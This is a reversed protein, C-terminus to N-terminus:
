SRNLNYMEETLPVPRTPTRSSVLIACGYRVITEKKHQPLMDATVEPTIYFDWRGEMSQMKFAWKFVKMHSKKELEDPNELEVHGYDRGTKKAIVKLYTNLYPMPVRHNNDSHVMFMEISSVFKPITVSIKATSYVRFEEGTLDPLLIEGESCVLAHLRDCGCFPKTEGFGMCRHTSRNSSALEIAKLTEANHFEKSYKAYIEALNSAFIPASFSTGLLDNVRTGYKNFSEVGLKTGDRCCNGGHQVVEPKPSQYLCTNTTGCTTFPSLDNARSISNPSEKKAIAGVAVINVAQAPDQVPYDSVYSSSPIGRNAFDMVIRLEINGASFVACVNNEQVLRDLYATVEPSERMFNVSSLFIRAQNSYKVIARRYSEHFLLRQNDSYIKYSIIRARPESLAEGLVALCAIPTGHGADKCGDALDQFRYGDKSVVLGNLQPIDNVGSDLLCIIPLENASNQFDASSSIGEVTQARKSRRRKRYSRTSEVYGQPVESVRFVFNSTQLLERTPEQALSVSIFEENEFELTETSIKRVYEVLKGVYERRKDSSINPILQILLPKAVKTWESDERLHEPVQEEFLLPGIRKVNQFYKKSYREKNLIQTLKSLPCSILLKNHEINLYALVVASLRKLVTLMDPDFVQRRKGVSGKRTPFLKTSVGLVVYVNQNDKMEKEVINSVTLRIQERIDKEAWEEEEETPEYAIDEFEASPWAAKRPKKERITESKIFIFNSSISFNRLRRGM